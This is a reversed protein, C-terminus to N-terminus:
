TQRIPANGSLTSKRKVPPGPPNTATVTIPLRRIKRIKKREALSASMFAVSMKGSALRLKRTFPKLKHHPKRFAITVTTKCFGTVLNECTIPVFIVGSRAGEVANGLEIKQRPPDPSPVPEPAPGPDPAPGPGPAPPAPTKSVATTAVSEDDSGDPDATAASAKPKATLSGDADAAATRVVFDFAADVGAPLSARTCSFASDACTFSPGSVQTASEFSTGAPLPMAVRADKADSPGANHVSVRYTVTGGGVVPDPTASVSSSLDAATAVTTTASASNNPVLDLTSSGATATNTLEAGDAVGAGVRVVLTFPYTGPAASAHTCTVTGSAEGCSFGDPGAISVFTTGSPLTDTLSLGEASDPGSNTVGITYTLEAGAQVPDPADSVTTSLDAFGVDAMAPTVCAASALMSIAAALM